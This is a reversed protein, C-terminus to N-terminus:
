EHALDLVLGIPGTHQALGFDGLPVGDGLALTGIEFLDHGLNHEGTEIVHVREKNNVVDVAIQPPHLRAVHSDAINEDIHVMPPAFQKNRKTPVLWLEDNMSCAILRAVGSAMALGTPQAACRSTFSSRGIEVNFVCPAIPLQDAFADGRLPGFNAGPVPVLL